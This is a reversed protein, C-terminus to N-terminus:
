FIFFLDFINFLILACFYLLILIILHHKYHSTFGSFFLLSYTYSFAFCISDVCFSSNFRFDSTHRLYNSETTYLVIWISSLFFLYYFPESPSKRKDKESFVSKCMKKVNTWKISKKNM